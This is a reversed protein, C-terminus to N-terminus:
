GQEAAGDEAEAEDGAEDEPAGTPRGLPDSWLEEDLDRRKQRQRWLAGAGAITVLGVIRGLRGRGRPEEQDM